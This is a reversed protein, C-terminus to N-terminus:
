SMVTGPSTVDVMHTKQGDNFYRNMQTQVNRQFMSSRRRKTFEELYEHLKQTNYASMDLTTDSM